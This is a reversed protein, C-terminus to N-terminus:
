WWGLLWSHTLWPSTLWKFSSYLVPNLFKFFFFHFFFINRVVSAFWWHRTLDNSHVSDSKGTVKEFAARSWHWRVGLREPKRGTWTDSMDRGEKNLGRWCEETDWDPSLWMRIWQLTKRGSGWPRKPGFVHRDVGDDLPSSYSQMSFPYRQLSSQSIQLLM